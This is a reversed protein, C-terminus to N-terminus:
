EKTPQPFAEDYAALAAHASQAALGDPDHPSIEGRQSRQLVAAHTESWLKRRASQHETESCTEDAEHGVAEVEAFLKELQGVFVALGDKTSCTRHRDIIARLTYAFDTITRM